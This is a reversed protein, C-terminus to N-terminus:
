PTLEMRRNTCEDLHRLAIFVQGIRRKKCDGTLRDDGCNMCLNMVPGKLKWCLKWQMLQDDRQRLFEPDCYKRQIVIINHVASAWGPEITKDSYPFSRVTSCIPFGM